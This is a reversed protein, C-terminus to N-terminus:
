GPGAKEPAGGGTTEDGAGSAEDSMNLCACDTNHYYYCYSFLNIKGDQGPGSSILVYIIKETFNQNFSVM